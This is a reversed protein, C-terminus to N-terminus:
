SYSHFFSGMSIRIPPGTSESKASQDCLNRGEANQSCSIRFESRINRPRFNDLPEGVFVFFELSTRATVAALIEDDARKIVRRLFGTESELASEVRRAHGLRAQMSSGIRAIKKARYFFFAEAPYRRRDVAAMINPVVPSIRKSKRRCGRSSPARQDRAKGSSCFQTLAHQATTHDNLSGRGRHLFDEAAGSPFNDVGTATQAPPLHIKIISFILRETGASEHAPRTRSCKLVRIRVYFDRLLTACSEM